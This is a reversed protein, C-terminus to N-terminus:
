AIRDLYENQLRRGTEAALYEGAYSICVWWADSRLPLRRSREFLASAIRDAAKRDVPLVNGQEHLEGLLGLGESDADRAIKQGYADFAKRIASDCGDCAFMESTRNMSAIRELAEGAHLDAWRGDTGLAAAWRASQGFLLVAYEGNSDADPYLADALCDCLAPPLEAGRLVDLLEETATRCADIRVPDPVLAARSAIRYMGRVIRSREAPDATLAARGALADFLADAGRRHLRVDGFVAEGDFEAAVGYLACRIRALALLRLTTGCPAEQLLLPVLWKLINDNM